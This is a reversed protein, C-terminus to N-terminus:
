VENETKESVVLADASDYGFECISVGGDSNCRDQLDEKYYNKKIHGEEHCYYCKISKKGSRSRGLDQDVGEGLTKEIMELNPLSPM